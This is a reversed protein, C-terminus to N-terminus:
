GQNVPKEFSNSLVEFSIQFSNDCKDKCAPLVAILEKM